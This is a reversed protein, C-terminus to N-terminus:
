YVCARVDGIIGIPEQVIPPNRFPNNKDEMGSVKRYLTTAVEIRLTNEGTKVKDKIDFVYPLAIVMGAYSDNVWVEVGEYAQDIVLKEPLDSDGSLTFTNEYRIFGSFDRALRGIDHLEDVM